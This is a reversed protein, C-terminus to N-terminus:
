ADQTIQLDPYMWINLDILFYIGMIVVTVHDPTRMMDFPQESIVPNADLTIRLDPSMWVNLFLYENSNCYLLM